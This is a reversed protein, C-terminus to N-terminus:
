PQTGQALETKCFRCVKAERQITEACRPCKMTTETAIKAKRKNFLIVMDIAMIAAMVLWVLLLTALPTTALIAIILLGGVIGILWRGMYLYGLGPLLINLGIALPLSKESKM